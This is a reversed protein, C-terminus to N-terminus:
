RNLTTASWLNRRIRQLSTILADIEQRSLGELTQANLAHIAALVKPLLRKVRACLWVQKARKDKPDPRREVWGRQEMRDVLESVGVVGMGLVAALEVQSMGNKKLLHNIVFVQAHTLGTDKIAGDYIRIRLRAIDHFLMGVKRDSETLIEGEIDDRDIKRLHWSPARTFLRRSAQRM